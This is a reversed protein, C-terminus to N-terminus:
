MYLPVDLGQTHTHTHTHTYDAGEGGRWVGRLPVAPRLPEYFEQGTLELTKAQASRTHRGQTDRVQTHPKRAAVADRPCEERRGLM